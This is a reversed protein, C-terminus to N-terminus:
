VSLPMGRENQKGGMSRGSQSKCIREPGAINRSDSNKDHIDRQLIIEIMWGRSEDMKSKCQSVWYGPYLKEFEQHCDTLKAMCELKRSSWKYDSKQIEPRKLGQSSRWRRKNPIGKTLYEALAAYGTDSPQLRNVNVFGLSPRNIENKRKPATWLDEVMNRPLAGDMIIHHHLRYIKEEEKEKWETVAIYKLRPLGLRKRKDNLRRLYKTLEHEAEEVTEPLFKPAYTLHVVYDGRVFNTNIIRRLKKKANKDNAKIQKLASKQKKEKRGKQRFDYIRFIEVELYEGCFYKKERIFSKAQNAKDFITENAM